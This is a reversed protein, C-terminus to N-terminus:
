PPFPIVALTDTKMQTGLHPPFSHCQHIKRYIRLHHIPHMWWCLAPQIGKVAPKRMLIHQSCRDFQQVPLSRVFQCGHQNLESKAPCIKVSRRCLWFPYARHSLPMIICKPRYTLYFYVVYPHCGTLVGRIHFRRDHHWENFYQCFWFPRQHFKSYVKDQFSM